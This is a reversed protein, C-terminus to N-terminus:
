CKKKRDYLEIERGKLPNKMNFLAITFALMKDILLEEVEGKTEGMLM